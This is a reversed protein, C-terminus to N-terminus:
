ASADVPPCAETRRTRWVGPSEAVRSIVYSSVNEAWVRGILGSRPSKASQRSVAFIHPNQHLGRPVLTIGRHHFTLPAVLM